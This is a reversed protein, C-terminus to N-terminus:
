FNALLPAPVELHSADDPFRDRLANLTAEVVKVFTGAGTFLDGIALRGPWTRLRANIHPVEAAAREVAMEPSVRILLTVFCFLVFCRVFVLSSSIM